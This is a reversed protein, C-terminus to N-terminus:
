YDNQSVLFSGARRSLKYGALDSIDASFSLQECDVSFQIILLLVFFTLHSLKRLLSM